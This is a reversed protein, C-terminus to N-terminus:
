EKSTPPSSYGPIGVATPRAESLLARTKRIDETLQAVLANLTPYAREDRLRAVFDLGLVRDYLNRDFDLLHAEVTMGQADSRAAFTPRTGVNVAAPYTGWRETHAHCAYVGGAPILRDPPPSINATPVGIDRGLGRGHVVVGSLRYPRGLCGNAEDIDGRRLADRIRSSRVVDDKWKVPEIVNVEFGLRAGLGALYEVDGEKGRGLTFDPGVRIEALDLHETLSDVFHRAPMTAVQKTFPYVVVTDLEMGRMLELREGITTLLLPRRGGLVASPHPDFTIAIAQGGLSHATQVLGRIIHQHGRHLGDFVGITIHARAVSTDELRSAQSLHHVIRM